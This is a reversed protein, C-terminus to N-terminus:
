DAEEGFIVIRSTPPQHLAMGARISPPSEGIPVATFVSGGDETLFGSCTWSRPALLAAYGYASWRKASSAPLAVHAVTPFRENATSRFPSGVPCSEIPITSLHSQPTTSASATNQGLGIAVFLLMLLTVAAPRVSAKMLVLRGQRYSQFVLQLVTPIV